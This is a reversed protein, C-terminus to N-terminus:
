GYVETDTRVTERHPQLMWAHITNDMDQIGSGPDEVELVQNNKKQNQNENQTTNKDISINTKGEGERM